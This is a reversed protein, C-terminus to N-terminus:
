WSTRCRSATPPVSTRLSVTWTADGRAGPSRGNGRADWAFFQADPLQLEEALHMVRGSHEHGRHLLVVAKPPTAADAAAQVPWHRYFLPAGDFSAFEREVVTRM